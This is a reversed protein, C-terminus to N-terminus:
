AWRMLGDLHARLAATSRVDLARYLKRVHDVVTAPAVGLHAGIESHSQGRYLQRCVAMQGATVPLARLARELAVRHPELRRLTVQALPEAQAIQPQLLVAQARYPGREVTHTIPPQAAQRHLATASTRAQAQSQAEQERLHDLLGPLLEGALADLPGPLSAHCVEGRLTLLLTQAPEPSPVRSDDAPPVEGAQLGDALAPLVAALHREENLSFGPKGAARYLV